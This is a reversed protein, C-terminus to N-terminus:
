KKKGHKEILAALRRKYEVHAELAQRNLECEEITGIKERPLDRYPLLQEEYWKWLIEFEEEYSM